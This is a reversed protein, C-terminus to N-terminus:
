SSRNSRYPTTSQRLLPDPAIASAKPPATNGRTPEAGRVAALDDAFNSNTVFMSNWARTFLSQKPVSVWTALYATPGTAVEAHGTWRDVRMFAHARGVGVTRIDYRPIAANMLVALAVLGVGLWWDRRTM